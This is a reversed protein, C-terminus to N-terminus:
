QRTENAPAQAPPFVAPFHWRGNTWPPPKGKVRREHADWARGAPSDHEVAHMIPGPAAMLVYNAFIRERIFRDLAIPHTTPKARYEAAYSACAAILAPWDAVPTAKIASLTKEQSTSKAKPYASLAKEFCDILDGRGGERPPATISPPSPIDLHPQPQSLMPKPCPESTCDTQQEHANADAKADPKSGWRKAASNRAADSKAASREMEADIRKHRWGPQFLEALDDRIAAWEPASLRAIRALKRDDDPLSGNRWYDMILLLYAGHELTSLRSTDALYDAIYLPMWPQSM